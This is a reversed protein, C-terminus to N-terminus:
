IIYWWQSRSHALPKPQPKHGLLLQRYAGQLTNDAPQGVQSHLHIRSRVGYVACLVHHRSANNHHIRQIGQRLIHLRLRTHVIIYTYAVRATRAIRLTHIHATQATQRAASLHHSDHRHMDRLVHVATGHLLRTGSPASRQHHTRCVAPKGAGRYPSLCCPVTTDQLILQDERGQGKPATHAPLNNRNHRM